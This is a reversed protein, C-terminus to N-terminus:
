APIEEALVADELEEGMIVTEAIQALDAATDQEEKLTKALLAAAREYNLMRALMRAAGYGAIEFHELQQAAAILAWDLVPSADYWAALLASKSLMARAPDSSGFPRPGPMADLISELREAQEKTEALHLELATKLEKSAAARIIRPLAEITQQEVDYLEAVHRRFAAEFTENDFVTKRRIM